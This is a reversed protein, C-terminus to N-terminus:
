FRYNELQPYLRKSTLIGTGSAEAVARQEARTRLGGQLNIAYQPNTVNFHVLSEFLGQLREYDGNELANYANTRIAQARRKLLMDRTKLDFSAEAQEAKAATNFGLAQAAIAGPGVELPLRVGSASTYGYQSIYAAKAPGRLAAPLMQQIATLYNGQKLASAGTWFGMLANPAPGMMSQAGESIADGAKRRDRLFATGPLIDDLGARQSVDVGLARILGHAALEGGQSGLADKLFRRYAVEVDPPDDADGFLGGLSNVLGAFV